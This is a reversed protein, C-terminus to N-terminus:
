TDIINNEKYWKIPHEYGTLNYESLYLKSDDYNRLLKKLSKNNNSLNVQFGSM